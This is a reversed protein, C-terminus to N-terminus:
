TRQGSSEIRAQVIFRRPATGVFYFPYCTVLTLLGHDGPALVSVASPEVIEIRDVSYTYSDTATTLTFRDGKSVNKLNRFYSDRHASLGINGISGPDATGEIWGVGASLSAASTGRYVPAQIAVADSTLVAIIGDERRQHNHRRSVDWNEGPPEDLAATRLQLFVETDARAVLIPFIWQTTSVLAGVVCVGTLLYQVVRLM